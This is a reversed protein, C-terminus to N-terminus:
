RVWRSVREKRVLPGQGRVHARVVTLRRQTRGPGCAQWRLHERVLWSHTAKRGPEPVHDPDPERRPARLNVVVVSSPATIGERQARRVVPRPAQTTTQSALGREALCTFLAAVLQRDEKFSAWQQDDQCWPPRLGLPDRQPWDSHGMPAWFGGHLTSVVKVDAQRNAQQAGYRQAARLDRFQTGDEFTFSEAHRAVTATDLEGLLQAVELDTASLGQEYDLWRYSHVSLTPLLCPGGKDPWEPLMTGNWMIARVETTGYRALSSDYDEALRPAPDDVRREVAIGPIAYAFVVLGSLAGEPAHLDTPRVDDPTSPAVQRLLDVMAPEVYYLASRTLGRLETEAERRYEVRRDPPVQREATQVARRFAGGPQWQRVLHRRLEAVDAATRVEPGSM